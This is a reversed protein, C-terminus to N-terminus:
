IDRILPIMPQNRDGGPEPIILRLNIGQVIIFKDNPTFGGSILYNLKFRKLDYGGMLVTRPKNNTINHLLGFGASWRFHKIKIDSYAQIRDTSYDLIFRPQIYYKKSLLGRYNYPITKMWHAVMRFKIDLDEKNDDDNNGPTVPTPSNNEEDEKQFSVKGNVMASLGANWEYNAFMIGSKLHIRTGNIRNVEEASLKSLETSSLLKSQIKLGIDRITQDMGVSVSPILFRNGKLRKFKSFSGEGWLSFAEDAGNNRSGGYIGIGIMKSKIFYDASLIKTYTKTSQSRSSVVDTYIRKGFSTGTFSPNILIGQNYEQIDSFHQARCFLALSLWVLTLHIKTVSSM